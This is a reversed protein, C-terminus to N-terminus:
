PANVAATVGGSTTVSTNLTKQRRKKQRRKIKRTHVFTGHPVAQIPPNPALSSGHFRDVHHEPYGMRGVGYLINMSRNLAFMDYSREGSRPRLYGGDRNVM